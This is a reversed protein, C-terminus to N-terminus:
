LRSDVGADKSEVLEQLINKKEWSYIEYRELNVHCAYYESSKGDEKFIIDLASRLATESKVDKGHLTFKVYDVGEVGTFTDRRVLPM